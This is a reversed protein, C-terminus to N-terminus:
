NVTLDIDIQFSFYDGASFSINSIKWVLQPNSQFGVALYAETGSYGFTGSYVVSFHNALNETNHVTLGAIQIRNSDFLGSYGTPDYIKEYDNRLPYTGSVPTIVAHSFDVQAM